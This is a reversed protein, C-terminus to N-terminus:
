TYKYLCVCVCVCIYIFTTAFEVELQDKFTTNNNIISYQTFTWTNYTMNYITVQLQCTWHYMHSQIASCIFWVLGLVLAERWM